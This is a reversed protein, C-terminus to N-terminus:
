AARKSDEIAKLIRPPSMPIHRMRVGVANSVANANMHMVVAAPLGWFLFLGCLSLLTTLPFILVGGLFLTAFVVSILLSPLTAWVELIEPTFVGGDTLWGVGASM